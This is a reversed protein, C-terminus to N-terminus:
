RSMVAPRSGLDWRRNPYTTALPDYLERREGSQRGAEDVEDPDDAPSLFHHGHFEATVVDRWDEPDHGHAFDLLSTGQAMPDAALGAIELITATFDLPSTFRVVRRNPRGGPVRLIGPIRYIDDYM